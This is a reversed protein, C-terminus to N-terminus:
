LVNRYQSRRVAHAYGLLVSLRGPARSLLVADLGDAM